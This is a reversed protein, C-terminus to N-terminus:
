AALNAMLSEAALVLVRPWSAVGSVFLELPTKDDRNLSVSLGEALADFPKRITGVLIAEDLRCDLFVIERIRRKTPYDATLWRQRLTQSLEFVNSALETMEDHSRDLADLQLKLKALRLWRDGGFIRWFVIAASASRFEIRRRLIAPLNCTRLDVARHNSKALLRRM